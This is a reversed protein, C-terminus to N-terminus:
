GFLVLVTVNALGHFLTSAFVSGTRERMWGFILSPFFVLMRAPHPQILVHGIAFLLSTLLIAAVPVPTGLVRRRDSLLRALRTQLYGRFFVEEPLAIVLVQLLAQRAIAGSLHFGVKRGLVIEPLVHVAVVYCPIFIAAAALAVRLDRRWTRTTLGYADFEERGLHLAILPAYVFAIPVAYGLLTRGISGLNNLVVFSAMLAAYLAVARAARSAPSAAQKDARDTNAIM